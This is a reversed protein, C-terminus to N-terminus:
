WVDFWRFAFNWLDLWFVCFLWIIGVWFDLFVDFLVAFWWYVVWFVLIDGFIPLDRFYWLFVYFWNFYRLVYIFWCLVGLISLFWYFVGLFVWFECFVNFCLWIECVLVGFGVFLALKEVLCGFGSGLFVVCVGLIGGVFWLFWCFWKFKMKYWGWLCLTGVLMGLVAIVVLGFAFWCM